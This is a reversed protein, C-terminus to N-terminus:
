AAKTFARRFPMTEALARERGFFLTVGFPNPRDKVSMVSAPEPLSFDLAQAFAHSAAKGIAGVPTNADTAADGNGISNCHPQSNAHRDGDSHCNADAHTYGRGGCCLYRGSGL